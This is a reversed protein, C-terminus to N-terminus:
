VRSVFGSSGRTGVSSLIESGFRLCWERSIGVKYGAVARWRPLLCLSLSQPFPSPHSSVPIPHPLLTSLHLSLSFGPLLSTPGLFSFNSFWQQLLYYKFVEGSAGMDQGDYSATCHAHPQRHRKPDTNENGKASDWAPFKQTM